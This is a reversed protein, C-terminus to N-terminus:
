KMQGRPRIAILIGIVMGLCVWVADSFEFGPIM